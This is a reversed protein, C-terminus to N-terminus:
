GAETPLSKSLGREATSGWRARGADERQISQPPCKASDMSKLLRRKGVQINGCPSPADKTDIPYGDIGAAEADAGRDEGSTSGM